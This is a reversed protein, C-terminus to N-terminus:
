RKNQIPKYEYENTKLKWRNTCRDAAVTERRNNQIARDEANQENQQPKRPDKRTRLQRIENARADPMHNLRWRSATLNKNDPPGAHAADDRESSRQGKRRNQRI